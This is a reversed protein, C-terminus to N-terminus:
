RRESDKRAQERRSAEDQRQATREEKYDRTSAMAKEKHMKVQHESDIERMREKHRNEEELRKQDSERRTVQQVAQQEAQQMQLMVQQMKRIEPSLERMIQVFHQVAGNRSPDQTLIKLHDQIHQFGAVAGRFLGMLQQSNTVQGSSGAQIQEVVFQLHGGIHAIQPQSVSPRVRHGESLDNNELQIISPDDEAPESPIYREVRDAGFRAAIADRMVNVRGTESPIAGLLSLLWQTDQRMIRPSGLGINTKAKVRSYTEYKMFDPHVGRFACNDHFRKWLDYGPVDKPYSPNMLRRLVEQLFREWQGVIWSSASQEFRAENQAEITVETASRERNGFGIDDRSKYVGSTNNLIGQVMARAGLASEILPQFTSQVPPTKSDIITVPGKRHITSAATTSEPNQGTLVFGTSMIAGDLTANILRNSIETGPYINWAMGRVGELKGNGIDYLMLSLFRRVSDFRGVENYIYDLREESEHFISHTIRGTSPEKTLLHVVPIPELIDLATDTDGIRGTRYAQQLAEPTMINDAGRTNAGDKDGLLGQAHLSLMKRIESASWFNEDDEEDINELIELLEFPTVEDLIGVTDLSDEDLTSKASGPLLIAGRLIAEGYFQVEDPFIYGGIGHYYMQQLRLMLQPVFGPSDQLARTAEQSVIAPPDMTPNESDQLHTQLDWFSEQSIIMQWVGEINKDLISSMERFNVNSMWGLGLAVRAEQSFPPNGDIAGQIMARRSANRVSSRRLSEVTARAAKITPVRTSAPRGNADVTRLRENYETRKGLM